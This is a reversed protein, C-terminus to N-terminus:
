FWSLNMVKLDDRFSESWWEKKLIYVSKSYWNVQTNTALLGQPSTLRYLATLSPVMEYFSVMIRSGPSWSPWAATIATQTQLTSTSLQSSPKRDKWVASSLNWVLFWFQSRTMSLFWRSIVHFDNWKVFILCKWWCLHVLLAVYGPKLM